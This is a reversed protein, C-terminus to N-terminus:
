ICKNDHIHLNRFNSEVIFLSESVDTNRNFKKCALNKFKYFRKENKKTNIYIVHITELFSSLNNLAFVSKHKLDDSLNSTELKKIFKPIQNNIIPKCYHRLEKESKKYKEYLNRKHATFQFKLFSAKTKTSKSVLAM